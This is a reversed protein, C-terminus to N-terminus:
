IMTYIVYSSYNNRNNHNKTYSQVSLTCVPSEQDYLAGQRAKVWAKSFGDGAIHAGCTGACKGISHAGRHHGDVFAGDHFVNGAAVAAGDRVPHCQPSVLYEGLAKQRNKVV